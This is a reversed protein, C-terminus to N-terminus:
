LEDVAGGGGTGEPDAASLDIEEGEPLPGADDGAPIARAPFRDQDGVDAGLWIMARATTSSDVSAWAWGYVAAVLVVLGLMGAALRRLWRRGPRRAGERADVRRGRRTSEITDRM